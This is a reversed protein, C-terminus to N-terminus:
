ARAFIRRRRSGEQSPYSWGPGNQSGIARDPVSKRGSDVFFRGTTKPPPPKLGRHPLERHIEHWFDAPISRNHTSFGPQSTIQATGPTVAPGSPRWPGAFPHRSKVDSRVPREPEQSAQRSPIGSVRIRARLPSRNARKQCTRILKM